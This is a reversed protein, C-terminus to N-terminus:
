LDDPDLADDESAAITQSTGRSALAWVMDRETEFAETKVLEEDSMYFTNNGALLVVQKKKLKKIRMPVDLDVIRHGKETVPEDLRYLRRVGLLLWRKM